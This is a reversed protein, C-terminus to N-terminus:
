GAAAPGNGGAPPRALLDILRIHDEIEEATLEIDTAITKMDTKLEDRLRALRQRLEQPTYELSGVGATHWKARSMKIKDHWAVEQPPHERSPVEVELVGGFPHHAFQEPQSLFRVAHATGPHHVGAALIAFFPKAAEAYPNRGLSVVAFDMNYSPDIGLKLHRYNFDV